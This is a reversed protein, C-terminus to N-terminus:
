LLAQISSSALEIINDPFVGLYLVAVATGILGALAFGSSGGYLDTGEPLTGERMYMFM